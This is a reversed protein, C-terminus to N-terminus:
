INQFYMLQELTEKIIEPNIENIISENVRTNMLLNPTIRNIEM